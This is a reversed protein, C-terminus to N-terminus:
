PKRREADLAGGDTLLVTHGGDSARTMVLCAENAEPRCAIKGGDARWTVVDGNRVGTSISRMRQPTTGPKQVHEIRRIRRPRSQTADMTLREGKRQAEYSMAEPNIRGPMNAFPGGGGPEDTARVTWGEKRLTEVASQSPMGLGISAIRTQADYLAARHTTEGRRTVKGPGGAADQGKTETTTSGCGSLLVLGGLATIVNRSISM